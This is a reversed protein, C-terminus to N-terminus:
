HSIVAFEARRLAEKWAKAADGVENFTYRRFIADQEDTTLGQLSLRAQHLIEDLWDLLKQALNRNIGALREFEDINTM